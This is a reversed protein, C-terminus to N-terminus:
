QKEPLIVIAKINLVTNSPQTNAAITLDKSQFGQKGDSDFRVEIKGEEGPKVPNKPYDGATCGCSTSVKAIVLDANGTNKFKFSYSVKEGQIIKGFDHEVQAFTMVPLNSKDENGNASNPINVVSAPLQTKSHSCAIVVALSFLVLLRFTKM